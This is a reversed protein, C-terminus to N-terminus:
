WWEGLEGVNDSIHTVMVVVRGVEEVDDSIHTVM